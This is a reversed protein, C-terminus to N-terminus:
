HRLVKLNILGEEFKKVSVSKTFINSPNVRMNIKPVRLSSEDVVDRFYNLRIHFHKTM